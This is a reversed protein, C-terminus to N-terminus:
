FVWVKVKEGTLFLEFLEVFFNETLKQVRSFFILTIRACDETKRWGSMRNLNNFVWRWDDDLFLHANVKDRELRKLHYAFILHFIRMIRNRMDHGSLLLSSNNISFSGQCVSYFLNLGQLTESDFLNPNLNKM